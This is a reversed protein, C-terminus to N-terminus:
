AGEGYDIQDATLTFDATATIYVKISVTKTQGSSMSGDINPGFAPIVVVGAGSDLNLNSYSVGRNDRSGPSSSVATFLQPSETNFAIRILGAKTLFWNTGNYYINCNVTISKTQTELTLSSRRRVTKEEIVERQLAKILRAFQNQIM